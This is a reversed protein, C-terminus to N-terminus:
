ADGHRGDPSADADIGDAANCAAGRFGALAAPQEPAAATGVAAIALALAVIRLSKM